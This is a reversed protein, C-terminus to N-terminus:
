VKLKDMFGMIMKQQRDVSAIVKEARDKPCWKRRMSSLTQTELEFASGLAIEMFRFKEKETRRSSGEAINSPISIAARQSQSKYESVDQWPLGDYLDYVLDVLDMGHNWMELKKFDKM